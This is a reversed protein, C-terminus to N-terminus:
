YKKFILLMKYYHKFSNLKQSARLMTLMEGFHGTIFKTKLNTKYKYSLSYRILNLGKNPPSKLYFNLYNINYNVCFACINDLQVQNLILCLMQGQFLNMTVLLRKKLTFKYTM